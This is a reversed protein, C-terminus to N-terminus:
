ELQEVAPKHQEARRLDLPDAATVAHNDVVTLEREIALLYLHARLFVSHKNKLM